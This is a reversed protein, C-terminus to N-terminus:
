YGTASVAIGISPSLRVEHGGLAFPRLMETLIRDAVITAHGVEKLGDLLIAFVDDHLRAVLDENRLTPPVERTRLSTELRRAAASLLLHTAGGPAGDPDAPRGLDICLVAFHYGPYRSAREISRTLHETLLLRNPLGTLADSVTDATVDSHSGNIHVAQQAANRQIVGRCVTWHYSGDKHRMRHRIEFEPSGDTLLADIAGSVHDIDEPHVRQVWAQPNNGVEHEECGVLSLWESSFHVRNSLLNWSWLAERQPRVDLVHSDM